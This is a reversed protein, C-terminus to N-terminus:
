AGFYKTISAVSVAEFTDQGQEFIFSSVEFTVSSSLYQSFSVLSFPISLNAVADKPVLYNSEYILVNKKTTPDESFIRVKYAEVNAVPKWTLTIDTPQTAPTKQADLQQAPLLSKVVVSNVKTATTGDSYTVNYTFSEASPVATKYLAKDNVDMYFAFGDLNFDTLKTTSGTSGKVSVGSMKTFSYASHVMAYVPTGNADFKSNIYSDVFVEKAVETKKCSVALTLLVVVAVISQLLYKKM